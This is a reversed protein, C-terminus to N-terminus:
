QLPNITAAAFRSGFGHAFSVSLGFRRGSRSPSNAARWNWTCPGQSGRDLKRGLNSARCSFKRSSSHAARKEALRRTCTGCRGLARLSASARVFDILKPDIIKGVITLRADRMAIRRIEGRIFADVPTSRFCINVTDATIASTFPRGHVWYDQMEKDQRPDPVFDEFGLYDAEHMGGINIM